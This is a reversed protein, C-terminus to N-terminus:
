THNLKRRYASPSLGHYKRFIRSFALVDPYGVSDAITSISFNGGLLVEAREMRIRILYAKPSLGYTNYFCNRLYSVSIHMDKAIASLRLPKQYDSQLINMTRLAIGPHVSRNSSELVDAAIEYLLGICRFEEARGFRQDPITCIKRLREGYTDTPWRFTGSRLVLEHMLEDAGDGALDIYSYTWPNQPDPAYVSAQDHLCVFGQGASLTQGNFVGSGGHVFHLLNKSPLVHNAGKNPACFEHGRNLIKIESM